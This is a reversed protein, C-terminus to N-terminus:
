KEKIKFYNGTDLYLIGKKESSIKKMITIYNNLMEIRNNTVYVLNGDNM